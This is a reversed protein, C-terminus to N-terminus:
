ADKQSPKLSKPIAKKGEHLYMLSRQIQNDSPPALVMYQYSALAEPIDLTNVNPGIFSTPVSALSFPIPPPLSSPLLPSTTTPNTKFKTHSSSKVNALASFVNKEKPRQSRASISRPARNVDEIVRTGGTDAEESEDEIKRSAASLLSVPRHGATIVTVPSPPTRGTHHHQRATPRAAASRGTAVSRRLCLRRLQLFLLLFNILINFFLLSYTITFYLTLTQNLGSFTNPTQNSLKATTSTITSLTQNVFSPTTNAMFIFDRKKRKSRIDNKSTSIDNTLRQLHYWERKAESTGPAEMMVAARCLVAIGVFPTVRRVQDAM